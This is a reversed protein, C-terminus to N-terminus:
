ADPDFAGLASPADSIIPAAPTPQDPNVSNDAWADLDFPQQPM